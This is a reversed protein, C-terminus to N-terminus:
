FLNTYHTELKAFAIESAYNRKLLQHAQNAKETAINRNEDILIITNSVEEAAVKNLFYASNESLVSGLFGHKTTVIILGMMMAENITNNHGEGAHSTPYCYVDNESFRKLVEEHPQRGLRKLSLKESFVLNEVWNTFSEHEQGIISLNIQVGNNCAINCGEILEFIGKGEYCYGVFLINIIKQQLKKNVKVPIEKSPVFNPFYYSKTGFEKQVFDLYPKGEVLVLNSGKVIIQIMKQNIGNTSKYWKTFVGAKIEFVFPKGFLKTVFFVFFERPTATRYQSVMHVADPKELLMSKVFRYMDVFMRVAFNDLKLQGRITHFSPVITFNDSTFHELYAKMNRTYGGVGGGYAGKITKTSVYPGYLLIKKKM